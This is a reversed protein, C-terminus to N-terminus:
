EEGAALCAQVASWGTRSLPRLGEQWFGRELEVVPLGTPAGLRRAFM